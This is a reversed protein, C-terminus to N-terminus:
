DEDANGEKDEGDSALMFVAELHVKSACEAIQEATVSEIKELVEDLTLIEDDLMHYTYYSSVWFPDTTNYTNRYSLRSAELKEATFRGERMESLLRLVESSVSKEKETDIGCDVVLCGKASNLISRCYYALSLKERVNEFLKSYTGGGFIDSMVMYAYKNEDPYTQGTRFGMILKGQSVPYKEEVRRFSGLKKGVASLPKSPERVIKSFRDTFIREVGDASASSVVNIQVFATKILNKWAAYVDKMTVAAIQEESGTKRMAFVDNEFMIERLRDNAYAHKDDFDKRIDAIILRKERDLNEKGFSGNKVNPEFIVSALLEACKETLCDGDLTYSDDLFVAKLYLNQVDGLKIIGATVSAGYLDDLRRNLSTFDPYERCSNRLLRILVANAATSEGMPMAMNVSIQATKYNESKIVCFNLGEAAKRFQVNM